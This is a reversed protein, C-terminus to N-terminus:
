NKTAEMLEAYLAADVDPLYKEVVPKTAEVLQAHFEPTVETIELGAAKMGELAAADRELLAQRM